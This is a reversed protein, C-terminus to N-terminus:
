EMGRLIKYLRASREFDDALGGSRIRSRIRELSEILREIADDLSPSTRCIDAWLAYPSGALRLSDRLGPGALSAAAQGAGDLVTEALAVAVIQPLHSLFAILRDHEDADIWILRSGIAEIVAVLRGVREDAPASRGILVYPAGSFLDASAHECGGLERGSIPHGGLFLRPPSFLARAADCVLTKTSGSDTVLSHVAAAAAIEPLRRISEEVPLALYILDADRCAAPLDGSAEDIIEREVARDLVERRDWGAVRVGPFARRLALAFSGGILGVGIVAVRRFPVSM